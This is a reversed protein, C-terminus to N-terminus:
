NSLRATLQKKTGKDVYQLAIRNEPRNDFCYLVFLFFWELPKMLLYVLDSVIKVEFIGYHRHVWLGVRNYNKRVFAHAVPFKEQM